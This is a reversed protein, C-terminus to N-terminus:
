SRIRFFLSRRSLKSSGVRNMKEWGSEALTPVVRIYELDASKAMSGGSDSLPLLDTSPQTDAYVLIAHAHVQFLQAFFLYLIDIFQRNNGVLTVRCEHSVQLLFGAFCEALTGGLGSLIVKFPFNNADLPSFVSKIM